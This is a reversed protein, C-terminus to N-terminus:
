TVASNLCHEHVRVYNVGNPNLRSEILSLKSVVLDYPALEEVGAVAQQLSGHEDSTLRRNIRGLTLHPTFITRDRPFGKVELISELQNKIRKIPQLDGRVGCWLTRPARLNPFAGLGHVQLTFPSIESTSTIMASDISHVLNEATVGLFKMTLHMNMPKVWRIIPLGENRFRKLVEEFHLTFDDSVDIAIFLRRLTSSKM